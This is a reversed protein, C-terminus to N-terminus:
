AVLELGLARAAAHYLTLAARSSADTAAYLYLVRRLAPIVERFLELRKPSLELGLDAVGTVNGGPAACRAVLAATDGQTFRIGLVFHDLARYGLARLGDQLGLVQPTPGWSATVAGIRLPRAREAASVGQLGLGSAVLCVVGLVAHPWRHPPASVGGLVPDGVRRPRLRDRM